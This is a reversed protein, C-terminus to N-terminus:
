KGKSERRIVRIFVQVLKPDFKTGAYMKIDSLIKEETAVEGRVASIRREYYNALYIIRSYLPISDGKLGEPYGTGDWNEHHYLVYKAINATKSCSNLIRYGVIPHQKVEKWQRTTLKDRKDIIDKELVIKGIDHYYAANKLIEIENEPLGLEIGIKECLNRMNESHKKERPEKRHLTELLSDVARKNISKRHITKEIYMEEEANEMIKYIDQAPIEKTDSGISMSIKLDEISEQSLLKKIREIVKRVEVSGTNPLLVAFEDGGLRAIIDDTRFGKRLVEATKKLLIDGSTHGFIDNILKLRNVDGIVVSIPLNEKRDLRILEMEFFRRNYLGTLPDRYSYFTIEEEERKRDTIDSFTVVAGVIEGDKYQPNVFYEVNFYSGDARWFVEDDVKISKGTVITRMIKCDGIPIPRKDEYSHHIIWHVNKGVLEEQHDYGLIRLGSRNFFTCNGELDIGFIGEATSDLILALREQKEQLKSNIKELQKKYNYEETVDVVFTGVGYKENLLKVPFKTIRYVKKDQEIETELTILKDLVKRDIDTYIQALKKDILDHDKKGLIESEDLKYFDKFVQNVFIYTLEDDKLFVMDKSADIFTQILENFNKIERNQKELSKMYELSLIGSGM